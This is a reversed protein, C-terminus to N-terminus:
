QFLSGEITHQIVRKSPLQFALYYSPLHQYLLGFNAGKFISFNVRTLEVFTWWRLMLNGHQTKIMWRYFNFKQLKHMHLEM